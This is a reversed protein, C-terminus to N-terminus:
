PNFPNDADADEAPEDAEAGAEADADAAGGTSFPDPEAAPDETASDTSDEGAEPPTADKKKTAQFKESGGEHILPWYNTSERWAQIRGTKTGLYIRDTVSNLFKFDLQETGLTAIPSGSQTDIAVLRGSRDACYLRTQSGAVFSSLEGKQAWNERGSQAGISYLSGLDSIAYVSDGLVLPRNSIPEGVSFRWLLSGQKEHVCYVYGDLSAVFLRAFVDGDDKAEDEPKRDADETATATALLFAPQCVISAQTELRYRLGPRDANAVMLYNRDTPWVLSSGVLIPQVQNRGHSGYRGPWTVPDKLSYALILGRLLPVFIQTDSIAPAAGPIDPLRKTWLVQGDLPSMVFLNQGNLVAVYDDNAAPPLTPVGRKGVQVSWRIRGSEGDIAQITGDATAAYLTIEPVVRQVLRPVRDPNARTQDLIPDAVQELGTTDRADQKNDWVKLQQEILKLMALHDADPKSPSGEARLVERLRKLSAHAAGARGLRDGFRDLDFESFVTRGRQDVVEYYTHARTSSVHPTIGSVTGGVADVELQTTWLRELGARRALTQTFGADQAQTRSSAMAWLSGAVLFRAALGWGRSSRSMM